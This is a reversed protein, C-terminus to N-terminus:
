RDLGLEAGIRFALVDVPFIKVAEEVSDDRLMLLEVAKVLPEKLLAAGLIQILDVPSDQPKGAILEQPEGSLHGVLNDDILCDVEGLGEGCLFAM